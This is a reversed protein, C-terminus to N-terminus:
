TGGVALRVFPQITSWINWPFFELLQEGTTGAGDARLDDCRRVPFRVEETRGDGAQEPLSVDHVFSSERGGVFESQPEGRHLEVDGLFGARFSREGALVPVGGIGPRVAADDALFFEEVGVRLVLRVASPRAEEGGEVLVADLVELVVGVAHGAGLDAALTATGVEPM